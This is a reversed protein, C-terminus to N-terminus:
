VRKQSMRIRFNCVSSSQHSRGLLEIFFQDIGRSLAMSKKIPIANADSLVPSRRVVDAYSSGSPRKKRNVVTWSSEQEKDFNM